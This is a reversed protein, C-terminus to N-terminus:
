INCGWQRSATTGSRRPFNTEKWRVSSTQQSYRKLNPNFIQTMTEDLLALSSASMANVEDIIFVDTNEYFTRLQGMKRNNSASAKAEQFENHSWGFMSHTTPGNFLSAAKGTGAGAQVKGSSGVLLLLDFICLM